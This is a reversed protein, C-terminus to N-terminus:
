GADDDRSKVRDKLVAFPSIEATEEPPEFVAGPKRPFPDLALSLHELVHRSVDIRGDTVLDPANEDLTIEVESTEEGEPAEVLDLDFSERVTEEVPELTLGCAQVAQGSLKGSLRWGSHAPVLQVEAEFAPLELIGLWRSIARRMEADPKLSFSRKEGIQNLRVPETLVPPEASM